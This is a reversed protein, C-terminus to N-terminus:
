ADGFGGEDGGLAVIRGGDVVMWADTFSEVSQMELGKRYSGAEAAVGWMRSIGHFLKRM